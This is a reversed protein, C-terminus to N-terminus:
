ECGQEAIQELMQRAEVSGKKSAAVLLVRAQDCNKEVGDGRRYLDALTVEAPVHGKKVSAWLLMVARFLDQQRNSGRLIDRAVLFEEQGTMGDFVAGTRAAPDVAGRPASNEPPKVVPPAVPPVAARRSSQLEGSPVTGPKTGPPGGTASGVTSNRDASSTPSNAANGSEAPTSQAQSDAPQSGQTQGPVESPPTTEPKAEQQAPAPVAPRNEGSISQGLQIFIGGIDQRFNYVLAGLIVALAIAIISGAAARSLHPSDPQSSIRAREWSQEFSDELPPIVPRQAPAHNEPTSSSAGRFPSSAPFVPAERTVTQNPFDAAPTVAPRSPTRATSPPKLFASSAAAPKEPTSAGAPPRRFLRNASPSDTPQTTDSIKESATEFAKRKPKPASIKETFPKGPNRKEPINRDTATHAVTEQEPKEGPEQEPFRTVEAPRAPYGSRLEQRITEMTDPPAAAAPTVERGPHHSSDSCLWASLTARFEQSVETFRMGGSKGGEEVWAVTGEGELRSRGDLSFAFPMITEAHVPSVARFRFGDESVSLLMGGNGVGLELYVLQLPKKQTFDPHGVPM